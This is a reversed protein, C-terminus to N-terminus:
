FPKKLGSERERRKRKKWNKKGNKRKFFKYIGENRMIKEKKIREM